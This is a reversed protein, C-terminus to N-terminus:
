ANPQPMSTTRVLHGGAGTVQSTSLNFHMAVAYATDMFLEPMSVLDEIAQLRLGLLHRDIANGRIAQLPPPPPSASYSVFGTSSCFLMKVELLARFTGEWFSRVTTSLPGADVFLKTGERIIKPPLM